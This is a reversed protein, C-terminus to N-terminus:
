TLIPVNWGKTKYFYESLYYKPCYFTDYDLIKPLVTNKDIITCHPTIDTGKIQQIRTFTYNALYVMNNQARLMLYLPIASYIDFGGGCGALLICKSTKM